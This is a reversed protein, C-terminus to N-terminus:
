IYVSVVADYQKDSVMRKITVFDKPYNMEQVEEEGYCSGDFSSELMLRVEKNVAVVSNASNEQNINGEQVRTESTAQELGEEPKTTSSVGQGSDNSPIASASKPINVKENTLSDSRTESKKTPSEIGTTEVKENISTALISDNDNNNNSNTGSTNRSKDMKPSDTADSDSTPGMASNPKIQIGGGQDSNASLAAMTRNVSESDGSLTRSVNEGTKSDQTPGVEGAPLLSESDGEVVTSPVSTEMEVGVSDTAGSLSSQLEEGLAGDMNKGEDTKPVTEGPESFDMNEQADKSNSNGPSDKGVAIDGVAVEVGKSPEGCLTSSDVNSNSDTVSKVSGGASGSDKETDGGINGSVSKDGDTQFVDNEAVKNPSDTDNLHTESGSVSLTDSSNLNSSEEAHGEDVTSVTRVTRGRLVRSIKQPSAEDSLDTNESKIPQSAKPSTSSTSPLRPKQLKMQEEQFISVIPYLERSIILLKIAFIGYDL